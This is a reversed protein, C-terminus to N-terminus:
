PGFRMDGVVCVVCGWIKLAEEICSVCGFLWVFLCDVMCVILCGFVIM